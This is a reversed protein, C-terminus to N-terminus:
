QLPPRWRCKKPPSPIKKVIGFKDTLFIHLEFAVNAKALLRYWRALCWLNIAITDSSTLNRCEIYKMALTYLSWPLGTICEQLKEKKPEDTVRSFHLKRIDVTTTALLLSFGHPLSIWALPYLRYLFSKPRRRLFPDIAFIIGYTTKRKSMTKVSPGDLHRILNKVRM